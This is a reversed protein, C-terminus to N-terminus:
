CTCNHNSLPLMRAASQYHDWLRGLLAKFYHRVHGKEDKGDNHVDACFQSFPIRTAQNYRLALFYRVFDAAPGPGAAAARVLSQKDEFGGSSFWSKQIELLATYHPAMAADDKEFEAKKQAWTLKGAM